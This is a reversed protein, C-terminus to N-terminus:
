TTSFFIQIKADLPNLLVLLLLTKEVRATFSLARRMFVAMLM